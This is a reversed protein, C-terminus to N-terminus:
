KLISQIGEVVRQNDERSLFCIRFFKNDLYPFSAANRILMGRQLLKDKLYAADADGEIIKCLVFNSHTDFVKISKIERLREVVFSREKDMLEKARNIYEEDQFLAEGGIVAITNASWPDKRRGIQERLELNSTMGYGLRLGPASFFKSVGRIVFLNDFDDLLSVSTVSKIDQTFEVYTEDVMVYIGKSKCFSLIERMQSTDVAKGTPNNPNCIILLKTENDLAEFLGGNDLRFELEEKLRYRVIEGGNIKVAEEYESYAPSVVVARNPNISKIFLSILETAGNGVLINDHHTDVYKSIVKRLSLYDPDPYISLMDLNRAISAKAGQPIGLPNINGSYDVIDEEKLGHELAAKYINGGHETKSM